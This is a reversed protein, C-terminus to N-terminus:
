VAATSALMPSVWTAGAPRVVGRSRVDGLREMTPDIVLTSETIRGGGAMSRIEARSVTRWADDVGITVTLPSALELHLDQVTGEVAHRMSDIGCGSVGANLERDDIVAAVILARHEVIECGAQVNRGHSTWKPLFTNIRDSLAETQPATLTESVLFTWARASDPLDSINM